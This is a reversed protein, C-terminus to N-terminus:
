GGNSEGGKARIGKLTEIQAKLVRLFRARDKVYLVESVGFDKLMSDLWREAAKPKGILDKGEAVLRGIEVRMALAEKDSPEGAGTAPTETEQGSEKKEGTDQQFPGQAGTPQSVAKEEQAGFVEAITAQEDEIANKAGVLEGFQEDSLSDYGAGFKAQIMEPTIGIEACEQLFERPREGKTKGKMGAAIRKAERFYTDILPVPLANLVANRQAKSIGAQIAKDIRDPRIKETFGNSYTIFKSVTVTRLVRFNTEYDLFVGEVVYRDSQEEVIRGASACNGWLRSLAMAAKISPGEVAIKRDSGKKEAYPISYFARAAFDPYARLEKLATELVPEKREGRPHMLAFTAQSDNEVRMITAGKMVEDKMRADVQQRERDIQGMGVGKGDGSNM